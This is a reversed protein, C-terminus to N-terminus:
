QELKLLSVARNIPPCVSTHVPLRAHTAPLSAPPCVARQPHCTSRTFGPWKATGCFVAPPCRPVCLVTSISHLSVSLTVPPKSNKVLVFLFVAGRDLCQLVFVLVHVVQVGRCPACGQWSGPGCRLVTLLALCASSPLLCM